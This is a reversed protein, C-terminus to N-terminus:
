TLVVCNKTITGLAQAVTIFSIKRNLTALHVDLGTGVGARASTHLGATWTELLWIGKM